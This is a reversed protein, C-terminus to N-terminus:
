MCQNHASSIIMSPFVISRRSLRQRWSIVDTTDRSELVLLHTYLDTHILHVRHIHLWSLLTAYPTSVRLPYGSHIGPTTVQLPYGSHHGPTSVRLPYESHHGPIKVQLPYGSHIGLTTVCLPSVSHFRLTKHLTEIWKRTQYYWTM